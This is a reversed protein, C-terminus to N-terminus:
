LGRYIEVFGGEIQSEGDVANRFMETAGFNNPFILEPQSSTNLRRLHEASLEVSLCGLNDHFQEIKRAGIIPATVGPRTLLWSLAVQSPSVGLEKAVVKVTEAIGLGHETLQGVGKVVDQRAADIDSKAGQEMDKQGYKGALVGGALPSWPIVALGLECAMPIIEHESTREVLNYHVQAAIFPTWGRLKALTNAEAIKWAPADSVAVYLIKGLRVLDDLGRMVEEVPTRFEWAHVWFLDIYDTKLRRLSAEV